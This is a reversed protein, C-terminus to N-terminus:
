AKGGESPRLRMALRYDRRSSKISNCSGHAASNMYYGEADLAYPDDTRLGGGLGRLNGHEFSIEDFNMRAGCISCFWTQREAMLFTARQYLAKGAETRRNFVIRGDRKHLIDSPVRVPKSFAFRSYDIRPIPKRQSKRRLQAFRPYSISATESANRGNAPALAVSDAPSQRLSHSEFVIETETVQERM